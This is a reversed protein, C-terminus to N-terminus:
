KNYVFIMNDDNFELEYFYFTKVEGSYPNYIYMNNDFSYYIKNEYEKIFKINKDIIKQSINKNELIIKYLGDKEFYKYNSLSSDNYKIKNIKYESKSCVVFNGNEYKTFGKENSGVITMKSKKTNFEYLISYKNDFIYINNKVSGVIYSDFDINYGLDIKEFNKNTMNLKILSTYEHEEDNNAMYITDDLLYALSNDYKDNKFLEINNYKNGNMIIYGKYNWLAIYEKDSINNYYIFDKSNEEYNHKEKYEDLLDLDILNYDTFEGDKYCLPYTKINKIEPYICYINDKSIVKISDIMTKKFKRKSYFDFNFKMSDKEIEIYFRKDKYITKIKFDNLNYNIKYNSFYYKYFVIIIVILISYILIKKM